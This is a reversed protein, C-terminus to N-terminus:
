ARADEEFKTFDDVVLTGKDKMEIVCGNSERDRVLVDGGIKGRSDKETIHHVEAFASTSRLKDVLTAEMQRGKSSLKGEVKALNDRKQISDSLHQVTSAIERIGGGIKEQFLSLSADRLAVRHAEHGLLLKTLITSPENAYCTNWVCVANPEIRVDM